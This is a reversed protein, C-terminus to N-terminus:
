AAVGQRERWRLCLAARGLVVVEHGALHFARALVKGVHGFGSPIVLERM